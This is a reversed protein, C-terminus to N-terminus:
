LTVGPKITFDGEIWVQAFGDEDEVLLDYTLPAVQGPGILGLTRVAEWTAQMSPQDIQIVIEGDVASAVRVGNASLSATTDLIILPDGEGAVVRVDMAFTKGTLDVAEGDVIFAIVETPYPVNGWGELHVTRTKM